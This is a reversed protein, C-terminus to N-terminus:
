DARPTLVLPLRTSGRRRGGEHPRGIRATLYDASESGRRTSVTTHVAGSNREDIGGDSISTIDDGRNVPAASAGHEFLTAPRVSPFEGDKMRDLIDPRDRAIRATLYDANNGGSKAILNVNDVQDGIARHEGLLVPQLARAQSVVQRARGMGHITGVQPPHGWYPIMPHLLAGEANNVAADVRSLGTYWHPTGPKRMGVLL